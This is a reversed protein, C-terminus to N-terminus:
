RELARLKPSITYNWEGHFDHRALNVAKFKADSVKVGAPYTNQDLQCPAKLGVDTTTVAISQVVAQYGLLPKGRWNQTIFPFLHHVKVM